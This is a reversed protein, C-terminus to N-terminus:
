FILQNLIKLMHQQLVLWRDAAKPDKSLKSVIAITDVNFSIALVLGIVMLIKQAQRKYWGTARDMM